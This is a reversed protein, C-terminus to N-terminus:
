GAWKEEILRRVEVQGINKKEGPVICTLLTTEDRDAADQLVKNEETEKELEIWISQSVAKILKVSVTAIAQESWSNIDDLVAHARPLVDAIVLYNRM